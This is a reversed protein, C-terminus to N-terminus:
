GRAVPGLYAERVEPHAQVEAYSGEVLVRGRLMVVVPCALQRVFNMDHEIVLVAIGRERQLQRILDVTASTEAASLGATPEDLLLIEADSGILMAIELWQKQGHPLGGAARTVQRRLNFRSLLGHLRETTRPGTRLISWLGAAGLRSILPIELNEAVTLTPYVGPVQFKRAIGLRSIVHPPRATIEESRFWVRGSTPPFTGTIINFLTTKGCGNPGILCRLDGADISLDVGRLVQLGGFDKTVARVQLFPRTV